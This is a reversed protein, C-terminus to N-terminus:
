IFLFFLHFNYGLLRLKKSTLPICHIQSSIIVKAALKDRWLSGSYLVGCASGANNFPNWQGFCLWKYKRHCFYAQNPESPSYLSPFFLWALSHPSAMPPAGWRWGCLSEAGLFLHASLGTQEGKRWAPFRQFCVSINPLRLSSFDSRSLSLGGVSCSLLLSSRTSLQKNNGAGSGRWPLWSFFPTELGKSVLALSPWAATGPCAILCILM